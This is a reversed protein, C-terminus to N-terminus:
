SDDTDSLDLTLLYRWGHKSQSSVKHISDGLCVTKKWVWQDYTAEELPTFHCTTANEYLYGLKINPAVEADLYRAIHVELDSKGLRPIYHPDENTDLKAFLFWYFTGKTGPTLLFSYDTAFTRHAVCEEIGTINTSIGYVCSYQCTM